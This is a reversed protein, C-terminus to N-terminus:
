NRERRLKIKDNLISMFLGFSLDFRIWKLDMDLM